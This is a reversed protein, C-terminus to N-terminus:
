GAVDLFGGSLRLEDVFRQRLPNSDDRRWIVAVQTMIEQRVRVYKVNPIGVHRTSLPMVTVGMGAGVLGIATLTETVEITRRPEYGARRYMSQTQEAVVSGSHAPFVIHTDNALESLDVIKQNGCRHWAPLVAVLPDDYLPRWDVHTSRVPTRGIGIDTRRLELLEEIKQTFGQSGIEITMDPIRESLRRLISPLVTTGVSGIFSLHIRGSSGTAQAQLRRSASSFQDLLVVAERHLARGLETLELNRTNRIALRGGLEKELAALRQSVAAPSVYLREATRGVHLEEALVVFTELAVLDRM